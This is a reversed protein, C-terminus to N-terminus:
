RCAEWSSLSAALRLGRPYDTRQAIMREDGPDLPKYERTFYEYQRAMHRQCQSGIFSGFQLRLAHNITPFSWEPDGDVLGTFSHRYFYKPLQM